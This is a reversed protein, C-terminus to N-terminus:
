KTVLKSYTEVSLKINNRFELILKKIMDTNTIDYHYNLSIFNKKRNFDYKLNLNYNEYSLTHIVTQSNMTAVSFEKKYFAECRDLINADFLNFNDGNTFYSMNHGIATIPTHLLQSITGEAFREILEYQADDNKTSYFVLKGPSLSISIDCLKYKMAGTGVQIEIPIEKDKVFQSFQKKYWQPTLIALNWAGVIVMNPLEKFNM